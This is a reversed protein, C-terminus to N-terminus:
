VGWFGLRIYHPNGCCLSIEDPHHLYKVSNLEPNIDRTVQINGCNKCKMEIQNNIKRVEVREDTEETKM